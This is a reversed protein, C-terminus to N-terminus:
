DHSLPIRLTTSIIGNENDSTHNTTSNMLTALREALAFWGIAPMSHVHGGRLSTNITIVAEEADIRVAVDTASPEVYDQTHAQLISEFLHEVAGAPAIISASMGSHDLRLDQVSMRTTRIAAIRGKLAEVIDASVKEMQEYGVLLYFRHLQQDLESIESEIIRAMDAEDSECKWCATSQLYSSATYISSIKNRMKHVIFAPLDTLDPHISRSELGVVCLPLIQNDVTTMTIKTRAIMPALAEKVRGFEVDVLERGQRKLIQSASSSVALTRGSARNVLLWSTHPNLQKDILASLRDVEHWAEDFQRALEHFRTLATKDHRLGLPILTGFMLRSNSVPGLAVTMLAYTQQGNITSRWTQSFVCGSGAGMATAIEQPPFLEVNAPHFYHRGSLLFAIGNEGALNDLLEQESAVLYGRYRVGLLLSAIAPRFDRTHEPASPLTEAHARTEAM